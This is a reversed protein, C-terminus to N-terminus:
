PTPAQTAKTPTSKKPPVKSTEDNNEDEGPGKGDSEDEEPVWDPRRDSISGSNFLTKMTDIDLGTIKDGPKFNAPTVKSESDDADSLVGGQIQTVAYWTKAM